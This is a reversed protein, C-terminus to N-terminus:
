RGINVLKQSGSRDIIMTCGPNEACAQEAKIREYDLYEPTLSKTLQTNALAEQQKVQVQKTAIELDKEAQISKQISAEIAPDTQIATVVVRTVKFGGVVKSDLQKQLGEHVAAELTNRNQHLTLSPMKAVADNVEGSALREILLYGPYIKGNEAQASMGSNTSTFEAVIEPNITYYVSVDLERLSLNDSARPKLNQLDVVTEKIIYVDVDSMVSTYFGVPIEKPDVEGFTKRVGVDGTEIFGCATMSLTALLILVAKFSKIM